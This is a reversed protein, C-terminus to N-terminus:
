LYDGFIQSKLSVVVVNYVSKAFGEDEYRMELPFTYKDLWELLPLDLGLGTNPFQPAHTHLDVFGPCLFERKELKRLKYSRNGIHRSVDGNKPNENM